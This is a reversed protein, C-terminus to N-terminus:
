RSLFMRLVPRGEDYEFYVNKFEIDRDMPANGDENMNSPHMSLRKVQKIFGTRGM